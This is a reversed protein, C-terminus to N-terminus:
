DIVQESEWRGGDPCIKGNYVAVTGFSPLRGTGDIIEVNKILLDVKM